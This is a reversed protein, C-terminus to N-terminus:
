DGCNHGHRVASPGCQRFSHVVELRYLYPTPFTASAPRLRRTTPTTLAVANSTRMTMDPADASTVDTCGPDPETTCPPLVEALTETSAATPQTVARGLLGVITTVNPPSGVEQPAPGRLTVMLTCVVPTVGGPDCVTAIWSSLEIVKAMSEHSQDSCTRAAGVVVILKGIVVIVNGVVVVTVMGGVVVSTRGGVVVEPADDVVVECAAVVVVDFGESVSSVWVVKPPPTTPPGPPREEVVVV